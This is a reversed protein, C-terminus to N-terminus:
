RMFSQFITLSSVTSLLAHVNAICMASGQIKTEDQKVKDKQRNRKEERSEKDGKRKRNGKSKQRKTSRTHKMELRGWSTQSYFAKNNNNSRM